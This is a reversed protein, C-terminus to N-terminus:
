DVFEQCLREFVANTWGFGKQAPYLGKHPPKDPNVVNYKELFEGHTNFWELNGRLWKMTIRKADDHYGYRQLGKIVLYQLPAWGNPYAWQTPLSGPVLQSLAQADTTALGGRNEFKRLARVMQLAQQEDALGAWLPYFGALSSISSRKNKMYNYDYYQGKTQSWMLDNMNSRRRKAAVDWKVATAKDGVHRYYRGFDIEYKYLLSNLDVAVYDLCKRGFRPTMDWGSEAEALDHIYNTDYYRSLGRYVQRAHPKITGMWVTQYEEEATKMVTTLWDDSMSYAEYIEWIFSTLFPPQSRGMLYLRSANPIAKFRHFMQLLNELIGVVLEKHAKDKSGMFGLCMFYSDWYYMENFDFEHGEDTAPVLYPHPLGLLTQDDKPHYRELRNWYGAIYERAEAVDPPELDSHKRFPNFNRLRISTHKAKGLV